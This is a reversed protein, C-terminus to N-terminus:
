MQLQPFIEKSSTSPQLTTIKNTEKNNVVFCTEATCSTSPQPTHIEDTETNNVALCIEAKSSISPELTINENNRKREISRSTVSKFNNVITGKTKSSRIKKM